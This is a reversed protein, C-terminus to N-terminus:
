QQNAICFHTSGSFNCGAGSNGASDDELTACVCFTAGSAVCTLAYAPHPSPKPDTPAGGQFYTNSGTFLGSCNSQVPYTSNDAYYQELAKAISDMANKRSSDRAKRQATTYSVAGIAMLVGIISIVVMLEILSFGYRNKTKFM